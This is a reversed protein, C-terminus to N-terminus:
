GEDASSEEEDAAEEAEEAAEVGELEELEEEVVEEEVARVVILRAILEDPDTILTVGEPLHLEGIYISDDIQELGSIDVEFASPIDSPLGNVDVTDRMQTVIGETSTSVGFTVIPVSATMAVTLDPAFFEAHLLQRSVPDIQLNRLYVTYTEDEEVSVDILSTNGYAHYTRDLDRESVSIPIPETVVTGYVVAPTNGRRRLRKVKKGITTRKEATLNPRDPM